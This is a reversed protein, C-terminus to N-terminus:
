TGRDWVLFNVNERGSLGDDMYLQWPLFSWKFNYRSKFIYLAKHFSVMNPIGWQAPCMAANYRRVTTSKGVWNSRSSSFFAALTHHPPSVRRRIGISIRLLDCKFLRARYVDKIFTYHFHLYRGLNRMNIVEDWCFKITKHNRCKIVIKSIHFKEICM